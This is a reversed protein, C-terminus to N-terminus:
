YTRLQPMKKIQESIGLYVVEKVIFNRRLKKIKQGVRYDVDQTRHRVDGSEVDGDVIDKCEGDQRRTLWGM